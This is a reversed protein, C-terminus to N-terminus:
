ISSVIIVYRDLSIIALTFVSSGLSLVTFVGITNLYAQTNTHFPSAKHSIEIFERPNMYVKYSSNIAGCLAVGSLLDAVALSMRLFRFSSVNNSISEM